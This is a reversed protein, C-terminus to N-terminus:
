AYQQCNRCYWRNYQQIFELQGGCNRCTPVNPAQTPPPPAYTVTKPKSKAILGYIALIASGSTIVPVSGGGFPNPVFYDFAFLGVILGIVGVIFIRKKM